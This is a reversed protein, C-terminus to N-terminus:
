KKSLAASGIYVVGILLVVVLVTLVVMYTNTGRFASLKGAPESHLMDSLDENNLDLINSNDQDKIEEKPPTVVTDEETEDLDCVYKVLFTEEDSDEDGNYYTSVTYTYLNDVKLNTPVNFTFTFSDSKGDNLDINQTTRSFALDSSPSNVRIMIEDENYIGTNKIEVDIVADKQRCSIVQVNEDGGYRYSSVIEASKITVEHNEREIEFTVEWEDYHYVREEKDRGYVKFKITSDDQDMDDNLKIKFSIDKEDEANINYSDSKEDDFWDSRSSEVEVYVKEIEYDVDPDDRYLNEVTVIVDVEDGEKLFSITDGDNVSTDEDNTTKIEINKIELLSEAQLSIDAKKTINMTTAQGVLTLEGIVDRQSDQDAPIEVFIIGSRTQGPALPSASDFSTIANYDTPLNNSITFGTITQTGTNTITFQGQVQDGRKSNSDGAQIESNQFEFGPIDARVNLYFTTTSNTTGDGVTVSIQHNGFIEANPYSIIGNSSIAINSGLLPSSVYYLLNDNDADTAVVKDYTFSNGLIVQQNPITTIVPASNVITVNSSKVNNAMNTDNHTVASLTASIQYTGKTAYQKTYTIQEVANTNLNNPLNILQNTGDGFVLNISTPYSSANYFDVNNRVIINFTIDSDAVANGSTSLSTIELDYASAFSLSLLFITAILILLRKM